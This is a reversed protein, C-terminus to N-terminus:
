LPLRAPAVPIVTSRGVPNISCIKVHNHFLPILGAPNKGGSIAPPQAGPLGEPLPPSCFKAIEMTLQPHKEYYSVNWDSGFCALSLLGAAVKQDHQM